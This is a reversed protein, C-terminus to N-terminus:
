LWNPFANHSPSLTTRYYSLQIQTLALYNKLLIGSQKLPWNLLMFWLPWLGFKEKIQMWIYRVNIGGDKSVLGDM